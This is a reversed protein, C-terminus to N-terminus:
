AKPCKYIGRFTDGRDLYNVYGDCEFTEKHGKMIGRERMGEGRWDWAVASTIGTM